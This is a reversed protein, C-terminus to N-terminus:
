RLKGLNGVKITFTNVLTHLNQNTFASLQVDGVVRYGTSLALRVSRSLAVEMGAEPTLLWFRDNGREADTIGEQRANGFAGKLSLTVALYESVPQAYGLWIGGFTMHLDHLAGNDGVQGAKSTYMGYGGVLWRKLAIGGGVGAGLSIAGDIESIEAMPALFAGQGNIKLSTFLMFIAFVIRM